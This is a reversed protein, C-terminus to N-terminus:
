HAATGLNLQTKSKSKTFMSRLKSKTSTSSTNDKTADSGSRERTTAADVEVADGKAALDKELLTIQEQLLSKELKHSEEQSRITHAHGAEYDKIDKRLSEIQDMNALDKMRLTSVEEQLKTHEAELSKLKERLDGETSSAVAKTAFAQKKLGSITRHASDLDGTLINNHETLERITNSSSRLESIIDSTERTGCLKEFNDGDIDVLSRLSEIFIEGDRLRVTGQANLTCGDRIKGSAILAALDEM